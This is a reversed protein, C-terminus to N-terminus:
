LDFHKTISLTIYKKGKTIECITAICKGTCDYDSYSPTYFSHIPINKKWSYRIIDRINKTEFLYIMTHEDYDGKQVVKIMHYKENLERCEPCFGNISDTEFYRKWGNEDLGDFEFKIENIHGCETYSLRKLLTKM